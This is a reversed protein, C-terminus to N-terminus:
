NLCTQVVGWLERVPFQPKSGSLQLTYLIKELFVSCLGPLGLSSRPEPGEEQWHGVRRLCRWGGLGSVPCLVTGTHTYVNPGCLTAAKQTRTVAPDLM